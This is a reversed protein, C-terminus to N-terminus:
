GWRMAFNNSGGLHRGRSISSTLPRPYHQIAVIEQAVTSQQPPRETPRTWLGFLILADAKGEDVGRSYFLRWGVPSPYLVSGNQQGSVQLIPGGWVLSKANQNYLIASLALFFIDEHVRHKARNHYTTKGPHRQVGIWMTLTNTETGAPEHPDDM